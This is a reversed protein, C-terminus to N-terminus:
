TSSHNQQEHKKNYFQFLPPVRMKSTTKTLCGNLNYFHHAYYLIYRDKYLHIFGNVIDVVPNGYYFAVPETNTNNNAQEVLLATSAAAADTDILTSVTTTATTPPQQKEKNWDNYATELAQQMTMAHNGSVPPPPPPPPPPPQAEESMIKSKRVFEISEIRIRQAQRKGICQKLHTQRKDDDDDEDEFQQQSRPTNNFAVREIIQDSAEHHDGDNIELRIIILSVSKGRQQQDVNSSALTAAAAAAARLPKPETSSVDDDNKMTQNTTRGCLPISFLCNCIEVCSYVDLRAYLYVHVRRYSSRRKRERERSKRNM